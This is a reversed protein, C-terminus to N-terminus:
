AVLSRVDIASGKPSSKWRLMTLPAGFTPLEDSDMGRAAPRARIAGGVWRMPGVTARRPEPALEDVIGSITAKSPLFAEAARAAAAPHTHPM